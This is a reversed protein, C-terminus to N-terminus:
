TMFLYVLDIGDEEGDPKDLSNLADVLALIAKPGISCKTQFCRLNTKKCKQWDYDFGACLLGFLLTDNCDMVKNQM